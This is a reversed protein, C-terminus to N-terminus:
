TGSEVCEPVPGFWDYQEILFLDQRYDKGPCFVYAEGEPAIRLVLWPQPTAAPNDKARGYHWGPTTPAEQLARRLEM